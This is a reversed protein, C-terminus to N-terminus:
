LICTNLWMLFILIMGQITCYQVHEDLILVFTEHTKIQHYLFLGFHKCTVKHSKLVLKPVLFYNM